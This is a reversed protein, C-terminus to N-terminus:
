FLKAEGGLAAGLGEARGIAALTEKVIQHSLFMAYGPHSAQLDSYGLVKLELGVKARIPNLAPDFAEETITLGALKVPLIRRRGWIFIVFPGKAPLIEVVGAQLLAANAIVNASRPYLLMELAALRPHLGSETAQPEGAELDDTADLVCDLKIGERPAGALRFSERAGEAEAGRAELTRAMSEPNFQFPIVTPAPVPPRFAVLAGKMLRPSRSYGTM